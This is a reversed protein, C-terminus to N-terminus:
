ALVRARAQEVAAHGAVVDIACLVLAENDHSRQFQLEPLGKALGM